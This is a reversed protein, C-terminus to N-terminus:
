ALWIDVVVAAAIDAVGVAAVVFLVSLLVCVFAQKLCRDIDIWM